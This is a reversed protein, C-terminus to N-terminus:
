DIVMLKAFSLLLTKEGATEFNIVARKEPASTDLSRVVGFGFKAHEVKKGVQIMQQPSPVFNESPVHETKAVTAAAKAGAPKQFQNFFRGALPQKTEEAVKKKGNMKLYRPDIEDLFRSPECQNLSGYRYRSLCYSIRLKKEARTIAVYFLRREEELDESSSVMHSPFINEELGVIFVSKFELGKAAHITMLTVSDEANKEADDADTMLSVEQLFTALTKDPREEDEVFEKIANLLEQVNEYRSVGEPTKDEYLERILGSERAVLNAIDYANKKTMAVRWAKVMTAFTEVANGIKGGLLATANDLVEQLELGQENAIIFVKAVTTDGIGRKPLNIIRKFAEEDAPNVLFRLYSVLDKIEKRQYFSLGGYIRYKINLKRLAEEISRSQANTRYLVAFDSNRFGMQMKEEFILTAVIRGEETDSNNQLVEISAGEENATWVTKKLQRANRKIVSNAAQVISNTSRYNQELRFTKLEPYDREFNLINEINAGRFAYISQADDGVVCLNQHMASLKRTILYQCVNTDQYEDVMVYKFREQYKYLVEPKDRFLINTNFLLDDFDMAQAKRLRDQYTLYIKSMMPRQALADDERIQRDNFYAESSILRNKAGSIRSYVASAKYLKDDLGMEKVISKILNKADDTDYISFNQPFGLHEAESRLIRAFVSHFTGMWLSKAAPGVLDEIRKRMEGAAKNTFTLSLINFPAVGQRLLHAIRYTLVRTKGSGAGAIIMVPGETQMAAARQVENLENLYSEM